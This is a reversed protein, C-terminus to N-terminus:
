KSKPPPSGVSSEPTIGLSIKKFDNATNSFSQPQPLRSFIGLLALAFQGYPPVSLARAIPTTIQGDVAM